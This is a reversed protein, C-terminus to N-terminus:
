EFYERVIPQELATLWYVVIDEYVDLDLAPSFYERHQSHCGPCSRPREHVGLDKLTCHVLSELLKPTPTQYAFLWLYGGCRVMHNVLRVDIQTSYGLKVSGRDPENGAYVHGPAGDKYVRTNLHAQARDLFDPNRARPPTLRVSSPPVLVQMAALVARRVPEPLTDFFSVM